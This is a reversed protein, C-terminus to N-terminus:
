FLCYKSTKRDDTKDVIMIINHFTDRTNIM